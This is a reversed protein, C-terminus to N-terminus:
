WTTTLRDSKIVNDANTYYYLTYWTFDPSAFNRTLSLKKEIYRICKGTNAMDLTIGQAVIAGTAYVKTLQFISPNLLDLQDSLTKLTDGDTGSLVDLTTKTGSITYGTKDSNTIVSSLM